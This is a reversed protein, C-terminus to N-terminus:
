PRVGRTFWDGPSAAMRRVAAAAVDARRLFVRQEALAKERDSDAAPLLKGHGDPCVFYLESTRLM